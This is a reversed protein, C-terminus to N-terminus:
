LTMKFATHSQAFGLGRYFAHARTRRLNSDLEMKAAGLRRAEDIAFLVMARGVGQGRRAALVHVAELKARVAGRDVLGPIMTLQFTGVVRGDPEEAVYLHDSPSGAIRAFAAEYVALPAPADREAHGGLDDDSFIDLLAQIDDRRAARFTLTTM